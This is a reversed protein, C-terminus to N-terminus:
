GHQQPTVAADAAVHADLRPLAIADTFKRREIM